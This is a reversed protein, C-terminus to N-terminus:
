PRGKFKRRRILEKSSGNEKTRQKYFAIIEKVVEEPDDIVKFLRVDERTLTDNRLATNKMWDVIGKWYERGVLIIPFKEIRKTQILTLSEFVEDLTGYGGPMIVFAIAHKVFMVKRCFFFRFNLLVQVFRNPKQVLPLEINLGISNGGGEVAGRNAAEMIAPGGGTIINFGEEALRRAIKRALNYYASGPKCRSSGFITVAPEYSPLTEFGDVFESM